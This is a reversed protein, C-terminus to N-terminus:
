ELADLLEDRFPELLLAIEAQPSGAAGAAAQGLEIFMAGYWRDRKEAGTAVIECKRVLEAICLDLQVPTLETEAILKVLAFVRFRDMVPRSRSLQDPHGGFKEVLERGVLGVQHKATLRLWYEYDECVKLREDFEGIEAFLSRELMIASPSIVCRELSPEFAEGDPMRHYKKPNVRVGGRYWIESCQCARLQPFTSLYELQQEIKQPLWRDDSDLFALYHGTARAAGNNRAAAVGKNEQRIFAYGHSELLERVESLDDESGDDVVFLEHIPVTQEVVSIVADRLQRRRNFVPIVVSVSSKM